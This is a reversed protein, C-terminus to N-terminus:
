REKIIDLVKKVLLRIFIVGTYILCILFALLFLVYEFLEWEM